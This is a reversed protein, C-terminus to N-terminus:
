RRGFSGTNGNEDTWEACIKSIQEASLPKRQPPTTYLLTNIPLYVSLDDSYGEPCFPNEKVFAVPEQETHEPWIIRDVEPVPQADFMDRCALISAIDDTIPEQEQEAKCQDCDHNVCGIKPEIEQGLRQVKSMAHEALVKDEVFKAFHYRTFMEGNKISEQMAKQWLIDIEEKTM